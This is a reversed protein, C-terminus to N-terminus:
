RPLNNFCLRLSSDLSDNKALGGPAILACPGWSSGESFCQRLFVEPGARQVM